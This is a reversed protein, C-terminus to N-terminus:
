ENVDDAGRYKKAAKKNGRHGDDEIFPDESYFLM